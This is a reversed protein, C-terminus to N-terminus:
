DGGCRRRRNNEFTCNRIAQTELCLAIATGHPMDIYPNTGCFYLSFVFFRGKQALFICTGANRKRAQRGTIQMNQKNTLDEYRQM